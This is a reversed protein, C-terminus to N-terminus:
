AAIELMARAAALAAEPPLSAMRGDPARLTRHAPGFPGNREPSTPGYLGLCPTGLAAAIHLPGTDGAIVLRARRVLAALEPLSTAPAPRAGPAADAIVHADGEEGPGWLTVVRAGGDASLGRALSVHHSVPWRKDARGAGANLVVLTDHPKIGAGTLFREIRVDADADIPVHFEVPGGAVGLPALLSLYHEIVHRAAPPPEVRENTFLASARERLFPGAFGIRRPARTAGTLLGSKLLGQLDLVVDFARARLARGVARADRLARWRPRTRRWGRTDAVIVDDVDPHHTLLAAERAEVVWTVRADARHRKLAVAVPMAHVVDGISSLKVIAVNV